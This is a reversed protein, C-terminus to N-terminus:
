VRPFHQVKGNFDRKGNSSRRPMLGIRKMRQVGSRREVIKETRSIFMRWRRRRRMRRHVGPFRSGPIRGGHSSAEVDVAGSRPGLWVDWGAALEGAEVPLRLVHVTPRLGIRAVVLNP